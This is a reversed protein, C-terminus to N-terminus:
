AAPRNKMRKLLTSPTENDAKCVNRWFELESMTTVIYLQNKARTAATYYFKRPEFKVEFPQYLIVAEWGSGQSKHVSVCYGLQLLDEADNIAIEVTTPEGLANAYGMGLTILNMNYDVVVGTQGNFIGYKADNDTVLVKDGLRVDALTPRTGQKPLDWCPVRFLTKGQPNLLSQIHLNMAQIINNTWSVCAWEHLGLPEVSKIMADFFSENNPDIDFHTQVGSPQAEYREPDQTRIAEAFKFISQQNAQRYNKVLHVHPLWLSLYDKFPTGYGIPPLQNPDGVLILTSTEPMAKIVASMLWNPIMSAEDLVVIDEFIELEGDSHAGVLGLARHITSCPVDFVGAERMAEEARMAAKGAFTMVRLTKGEAKAAEAIAATVRTKGCGAGGTLAMAKTESLALEVAKLQEENLGDHLVARLGVSDRKVHNHTVSEFFKAITEEAEIESPLWILGNEVIVGDHEHEGSRLGLKDRERKYQWKQMVGKQKAIYINAAEHREPSDDEYGYNELAIRDARKFSIGRVNTLAYPNTAILQCIHRESLQKLSEDDNERLERLMSFGYNDNDTGYRKYTKYARSYHSQIRTALKSSIGELEYLYHYPVGSFSEFAGYRDLM